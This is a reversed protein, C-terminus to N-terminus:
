RSIATEFNMNYRYLRQWLTTRKIGYETAWDKLCQTKGNYEIFDTNTRNRVQQKNTAWRCNEKFYGKSNDIRDISLEDSYGKQMDEWFGEFTLWKDCVTIGKAGYKIYNHDNKNNCRTLIGQMIRYPRSNRMNHTTHNWNSRLCGCSKTRGRTISSSVVVATNGCECLCKWYVRNDKKYAIELVTLKNFKKGALNRPSKM